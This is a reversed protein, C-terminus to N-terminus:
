GKIIDLKKKELIINYKVILVNLVLALQQKEEVYKNNKEIVTQM